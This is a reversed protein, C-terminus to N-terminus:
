PNPHAYQNRVENEEDHQNETKEHVSIVLSIPLIANEKHVESLKSITYKARTLYGLCTDTAQLETVIVSELLSSRM